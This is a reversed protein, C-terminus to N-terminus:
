VDNSEKRQKRLQKNKASCFAFAERYRISDRTLRVLTSHSLRVGAANAVKFRVCWSKTNRNYYINIDAIHM